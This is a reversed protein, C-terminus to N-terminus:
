WYNVYHLIFPKVGFFPSILPWCEVQMQTIELNPLPWCDLHALGHVTTRWNPSWNECQNYSRNSALISNVNLIWEGSTPINLWWSSPSQKNLQKNLKTSIKSYAFANISGGSMRIYQGVVKQVLEPTWSLVFVCVSTRGVRQYNKMAISFPWLFLPNVWQFLHNEMTKTHKGSPVHMDQLRDNWMGIKAVSIAANWPFGSTVMTRLFGRTRYGTTHRTNLPGKRTQPKMIGTAIEVSSISSKHM